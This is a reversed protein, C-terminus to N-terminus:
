KRVKSLYLLDFTPVGTTASIEDASMVSLMKVADRIHRANKLLPVLAETKMNRALQERMVRESVSSNFYALVMTNTEKRLAYPQIKYIRGQIENLVSPKSILNVYDMAGRALFRPVVSPKTRLVIPITKVLPGDPFRQYNTESLEGYCASVLTISEPPTSGVHDAVIIQSAKTASGPVARQQKRGPGKGLVTHAIGLGVLAQSIEWASYVPTAWAGGVYFQKM